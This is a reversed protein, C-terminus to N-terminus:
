RCRRRQAPWPRSRPRAAPRRRARRGRPPAAAPNPGAARARPPPRPSPRTRRARRRRPCRRARATPPGQRVAAAPPGARDTGSCGDAAAPVRHRTSPPPSGTASPPPTPVTRPPGARSGGCGPRASACGPTWPAPRTRGAPRRTPVARRPQQQRHERGPRVKELLEPRVPDPGRRRPAPEAAQGRQPHGRAPTRETAGGSGVSSAVRPSARGVTARSRDTDASASRNVRTRRVAHSSDVDLRTGTVLRAAM